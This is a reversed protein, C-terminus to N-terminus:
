RPRRHQRPRVPWPHSGGRSIRPRRVDDRDTLLGIACLTGAWAIMEDHLNDPDACWLGALMAAARDLRGNHQNLAIWMATAIPDCDVHRGTEVCFLELHGSALMRQTLGAAAYISM